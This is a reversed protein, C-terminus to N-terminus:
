IYHSKKFKKLCTEVTCRGDDTHHNHFNVASLVNRNRHATYTVNGEFLIRQTFKFNVFDIYARASM